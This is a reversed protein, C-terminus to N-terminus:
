IYVNTAPDWYFIIGSNNSGGETTMGYFYGDGGDTLDNGYPHAGSQFRTFSVDLTHIGTSPTFHFLTGVNETGGRETMGYLQIQAQLDTIGALESVLLFLLSALTKKM